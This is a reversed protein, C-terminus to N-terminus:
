KRGQKNGIRANTSGIGIRRSHKLIREANVKKGPHDDSKQEQSNNKLRVEMKGIYVDLSVV